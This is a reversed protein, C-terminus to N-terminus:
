QADPDGWTFLVNRKSPDSGIVECMILDAVPVAPPEAGAAVGSYEKVMFYNPVGDKGNIGTNFLRMLGASDFSRSELVNMLFYGDSSIPEIRLNTFCLNVAHTKAERAARKLFERDGDVTVLLECKEHREPFYVVADRARLQPLEEGGGPARALKGEVTMYWPANADYSGVGIRNQDASVYCKFFLPVRLRVTNPRDMPTERTDWTAQTQVSFLRESLKKRHDAANAAADERDFRDGNRARQANEPAGWEVFARVNQNTPEGFSMLQKRLDEAEKWKPQQNAAVAIKIEQEKQADAAAGAAKMQKAKDTAAKEAAAMAAAKRKREDVVDLATLLTPLKYVHVGEKARPYVITGSDASFRIAGYGDPLIAVLREAPNILEIATGWRGDKGYGDKGYVVVDGKPSVNGTKGHEAGGFLDLQRPEDASVDYVRVSEDSINVRKNNLFNIRSANGADVHGKCVVELTESNWVHLIGGGVGSMTAILLGDPSVGVGNRAGILKSEILQESERILLYSAADWVRLRKDKGVTLFRSEDPFYRIGAIGGRGGSDNITHIFDATVCDAAVINRRTGFLITKGSPSIDFVEIYDQEKGALRLYQGASHTDWLSIEKGANRTTAFRSGDPTFAYNIINSYELTKGVRTSTNVDWFQIEDQDIVALTSGDPSLELRKGAPNLQLTGAPQPHSLQAHGQPALASTLTFVITSCAWSMVSYHRM